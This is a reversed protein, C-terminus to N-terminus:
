SHKKSELYQSPSVGYYKVFARTFSNPANYGVKYATESINYQGGLLYELAKNMQFTTVFDNVSKNTLAKIKRYFQSRSMNVKGALFNVCFEENDLNENILGIVENLFAEDAENNAIEKLEAMSGNAFLKRLSKRQELLNNVRTKLVSISFPKTVYSDAGTEYGEAKAEDSQLVTLLVIPIHSTHRDTKLKRCLELGNMDPMMVDSIIIDPIQEVATEFGNTGNSATFVQFESDFNLSIYQRIDASDDVILLVPLNNQVTESSNLEEDKEEFVPNEEECDAQILANSHKVPLKVTFVTGKNLESEVHIEGHHLLILEKTLALGIGTGVPKDKSNYSQYFIDFVKEREKKPIGIGSDSVKILVMAPVAESIELSVIIQGGNPTFKLANSLLNNLVMTLKNKDFTVPLYDLKTDTKLTISRENAMLEFSAVCTRVFSVIDAQTLSLSLHGFTLKRFDLLQNILLLLQKANQQMLKYYHGIKEHDVKGAILRELPDVILTLPTKFEHSVETFFHVKANHLEENQRLRIGSMFYNYVLALIFLAFAFYGGIAWFTAWWPPRVIIHLIKPTQTWVGDCNAAMVKFEYNGAHLNSYYAIRNNADTEIWDHDFGELMYKYENRSPNQYHLGAFEIQFTKDWWRLTISDTCLLSKDLIVHKNVKKGPKVNEHMVGLGTLVVKPKDPSPKLAVPFFSNLGTMGGFFMEGTKEDQFCANQSFEFGQLGDHIDFNQIQFTSINVKSMGKKHSVWVAEDGDFLASMIMDSSLGDTVDFNVFRKSDPDLRSLGFNTAIWIMGNKDITLSYTRDSLLCNEQGPMQQYHKLSFKEGGAASDERVLQTVGLDETAIWMNHQQDEKISRIYKGLETEDNLFRRFSKTDPNYLVLGDLTGIWLIGQHDKEMAFVKSGPFLNNYDNPVSRNNLYTYLGNKTGIWMMGEQDFYLSRIQLNGLEEAGIYSYVPNSEKRDIITIGNNESGVWIRGHPGKSIARVVNDVLGERTDKRYYKYFPKTNLNCYNVGGSQTSVWLNDMDDLFVAKTYNDSLSFQDTAESQYIKKQGTLKNLQILGNESVSWRYDGNEVSRYRAEYCKNLEETVDGPANKKLVRSFCETEYNFRSLYEKDYTEIWINEFSDNVIFRVRFDPLSTSDNAIPRFVRTSYGDYRVAGGWTGFWMLGFKDKAISYVSNQPLGNHVGLHQFKLDPMDQGMIESAFLCVLLVLIGRRRFSLSM